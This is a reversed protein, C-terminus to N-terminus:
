LVVVAEPATVHYKNPRCRAHPLYPQICRLMCALDCTGCYLLRIYLTCPASALRSSLRVSLLDLKLVVGDAQFPLETRRAMLEEAAAIAAEIGRAVRTHEALTEFGMLALEQMADTHRQPMGAAAGGVGAQKGRGGQRMEFAVFRLRRRAAEQPDLLRLSGAAANRANSFLEAAMQARERNLQAFGELSIYVEGRVTFPARGATWETSVRQPLGDIAAGNHTVDEGVFGDGRTAAQVNGCSSCDCKHMSGWAM